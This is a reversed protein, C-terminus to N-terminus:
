ARVRLSSLLWSTLSPPNAGAGPEALAPLSLLWLPFLRIM